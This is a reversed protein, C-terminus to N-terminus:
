GVPHMHGLRCRDILEEVEAKPPIVVTSNWVIQMEGVFAAHKLQLEEAGVLSETLQVHAGDFSEVKVRYGLGDCLPVIFGLKIALIIIRETVELVRSIPHEETVKHLRHLHKVVANDQTRMAVDFIQAFRVRVAYIIHKLLDLEADPEFRGRVIQLKM